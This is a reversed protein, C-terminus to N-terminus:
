KFNLQLTLGINTRIHSFAYFSSNNHFPIFQLSLDNSVNFGMLHADVSADVINLIYLISLAIISIEMNRRNTNEYAYINETNLNALKTNFTNSNNNLRLRYETRYIVYEKHFYYIFFSSAGLGAYVIPVKWYKRNYIQGLGPMASSLWTATKPNATWEKNKKVKKETSTPYDTTAIEDKNLTTDLVIIPSSVNNQTISDQQAKLQLIFFFMFFLGIIKKM